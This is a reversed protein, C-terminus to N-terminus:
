RFRGIIEQAKKEYLEQWQPALLCETVEYGGRRYYEMPPSYHLYGNTISAIFTHKYPSAKKVNLGIEVLVEAPSSILVCDGIKIGQVEASITPEGADENLKQHKKLTYINSQIEVSREMLRINALYKDIEKQNKADMVSLDTNGTMEAHFYRYFYDSPYDQSRMHKMFLTLFAKFNLSTTYALSAILEAQEQELGSIVELFDTRRPLDITESIAKLKVDKVKVERWAKLVSLGLTTGNEESDRPRNMDKNFVECVDGGAGQIFLAMAGHGLNDEIIKSAFGPFDATVGGQPVVMLLHCAFNYVVALPRGDTRDIRIIGIEPDIPRLEEVEDDPPCPNGIRITWDRGNKLKVTRNITIRDEYGVGTGIMVPTMSQMARSLADVTRNIQEDDDCLLQGHFPHTHSANVMVNCGPINFEDLIRSRLRPMFDDASDNLIERSVTRSGIATVDMTIIAVKTEGDDLVLAKAYLPDNIRM